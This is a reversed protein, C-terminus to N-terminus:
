RDSLQKTKSERILENVEDVLFDRAENLNIDLQYTLRDTASYLSEPRYQKM